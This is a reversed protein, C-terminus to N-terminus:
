AKARRRRLFALAPLGLLMTAPEPVAALKGSDYGNIGQIHALGLVPTGGSSLVNFKMADLGAGSLRVSISDGAGLRNATSSKLDLTYDFKTGADNFGNQSYSASMFSGNPDSLVSTAVSSVSPAVNLRLKTLFERPDTALCTVTMDVMGAGSDTLVATAWPGPGAPASGTYLTDFNLTLTAAQAVAGLVVGLSLFTAKM